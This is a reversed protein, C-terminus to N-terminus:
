WKRTYPVVAAGPIIQAAARAEAPDTFKRAARQSACTRDPGDYPRQKGAYGRWLAPDPQWLYEGDPLRVLYRRTVPKPVPREKFHDLCLVLVLLDPNM